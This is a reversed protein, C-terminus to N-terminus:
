KTVTETKLRNVVSCESGNGENWSTAVIGHCSGLLGLGRASLIGDSTNEFTELFAISRIKAHRFLLRHELCQDIRDTKFVAGKGLGLGVILSNSRQEVIEVFCTNATNGFQRLHKDFRREGFPFGKAETVQQGM